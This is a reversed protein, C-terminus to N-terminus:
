EKKLAPWRESAAGGETKLCSDKCQESQETRDRKTFSEWCKHEIQHCRKCLLEFNSDQNNTRDHDKHHVCWFARPADALDKSCHECFRVRARYEKSLRQSFMGIGTKYAHHEAGTKGSHNGGHSKM